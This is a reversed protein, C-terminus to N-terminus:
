RPKQRIRHHALSKGGGKRTACPLISSHYKQEPDEHEQEKSHNSQEQEDDGRLRPDMKIKIMKIKAKLCMM